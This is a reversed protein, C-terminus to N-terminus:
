RDPAPRLGQATSPSPPRLAVLGELALDPRLSPSPAQQLGQHQQQEAVVLPALRAGDGGALVLRVQPEQQRAERWASAIAAACGRLVGTLLAGDTAAPWPDLVADPEAAVQPLAATGAALARWQLAVGALLRGGAFRGQGDVRTFSLATGGDVVLLPCRWRSWAAWAALARDVGLWPPAAQLPVAALTVRREAPLGADPPLAGVAAWACPCAESPLPQNLPATHWIRLEANGQSAAWHWRSNGILLWRRAPAGVGAV